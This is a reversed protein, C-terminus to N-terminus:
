AIPTGIEITLITSSKLSLFSIHVNNEKQQISLTYILILQHVRNTIIEIM